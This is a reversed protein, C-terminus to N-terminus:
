ISLCTSAAPCPGSCHVYYNAPLCVPFCAAPCHYNASLLAPRNAALCHEPCLLQCISLCSLQCGPLPRYSMTTVSLCCSAPLLATHRSMTTASLCAPSCIAPCPGLCPLQCISLCSLMCGTLPGFVNTPLYFPLFRATPCYPRSMTTASLCARLPCRPLPRSM